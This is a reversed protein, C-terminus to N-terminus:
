SSGEGPLARIESDQAFFPKFDITEGTKDIARYLYAWEGAVKAFTEDVRWSADTYRQRWRYFAKAARRALFRVRGAM